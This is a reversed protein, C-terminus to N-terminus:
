GALLGEFKSRPPKLGEISIRSRAVPTLGFQGAYTMMDRAAGAAIGVLPSQKLIRRRKTRQDVTVLEGAEALAEEAQRWRGFAQCYAAFANVDVITLLGLRYLEPSLRLWEARGHVSLFEPPEPIEAAIAPTPEAKIARKGPNGRLVKLVTPTRPRAM